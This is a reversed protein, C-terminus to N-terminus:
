VDCTAHRLRINYYVNRHNFPTAVQVVPSGGTAPLHSADPCRRGFHRFTPVRFISSGDPPTDFPAGRLHAFRFPRTDRARIHSPFPLGQFITPYKRIRRRNARDERERERAAADNLGDEIARGRTLCSFSLSVRSEYQIFRAAQKIFHM